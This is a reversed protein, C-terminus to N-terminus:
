PIRINAIRTRGDPGELLLSVISGSGAARLLARAQRAGSPRKRNIALIRDGEIVGKLAAAGNPSVDVVVVGDSDLLGYQQALKASVDSISLGLEASRAADQRAVAPLPEPLPAQALRIEFTHPRGYRIVDVRVVDGPSRQAIIRQLQGVRDIAEEDVAVIVDHRDLGAALAPSDEAFDDVRVGSISPLAYVQADEPSVEAISVGLLARRVHGYAILDRVVRRVINSPIAFGYGQHFGTTSAIATNIGIVEGRLNLLPGGSNGPNIVADTQLFDEIAYGVSEPDGGQLAQPIINLPRGKASIIGSTVTFDLMSADGFGPNGIAVVWEGVRAADSDGLTVAPLEAAEIKLVAIDTTPDRGIVRADYVRKDRLSVSLRVAEEVVHNNTLILGDESVLFGTGGAVVPPGASLSDGGGFMGPFRPLLEAPVEPAPLEAQIRVVAPTVADAISTFAASLAEAPAAISPLSARPSVPTALISPPLAPRTAAPPDISVGGALAALALACSGTLLLKLNKGSV